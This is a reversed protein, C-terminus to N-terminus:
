VVEPVYWSGEYKYSGVLDIISIDTVGPILRVYEEIISSLELREQVSIIAGLNKSGTLTSLQTVEPLPVLIDAAQQLLAHNIKMFVICAHENGHVRPDIMTQYNLIGPMKEFKRVAARVQSEPLSLQSAAQRLSIRGDGHLVSLVALERDNFLETLETQKLEDFRKTSDPKLDHIPGSNLSNKLFSLYFEVHINAIETISTSIDSLTKEIDATDHGLLNFILQEQHLLGGIAIIQPYKALKGAVRASTDPHTSSLEVTVMALINFGAARIDTSAVVRLMGVEQLKKIRTGTTANSVGIASSIKSNQITPDARLMAIIQNDLDDAEYSLRQEM